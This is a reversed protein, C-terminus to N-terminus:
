PAKTVSVNEKSKKLSEVHAEFDMSKLSEHSNEIKRYHENFRIDFQKGPLLLDGVANALDEVISDQYRLALTNVNRLRKTADPSIQGTETLGYSWQGHALKNRTEIIERLDQDLIQLMTRYRAAPDHDLQSELPVTRRSKRYRKRFGAEIIRQWRDFRTPAKEVYARQRDNLWDPTYILRQLRAEAKVAVLLMQTMTLAQTAPTDGRRIADNVAREVQTLARSVSLHNERYADYISTPM